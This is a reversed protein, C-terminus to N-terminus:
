VVVLGLDVLLHLHSGVDLVEFITLKSLPESRLLQVHAREDHLDFVEFLVLGAFALRRDVLIHRGMANQDVVRRGAADLQREVPHYRWAELLSAIPILTEGRDVTGHVEGPHVKVVIPYVHAQGVYGVSLNEKLGVHLVLGVAVLDGLDGVVRAGLAELEVLVVDVLDLRKVVVCGVM